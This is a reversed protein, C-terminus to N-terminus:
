LVKLSVETLVGLFGFSGAMLRSVDYGAVNKMVQGGFRLHKAEGTVLRCGLVFDRIGGSWPRRPGAWASAVMGGVTAQGSFVPPECPLYQDYGALLDNMQAVPTGARLTMVLESPQYDVVGKYDRVDLVEGDAQEALHVKTGGGRVLLRRGEAQATAVQEMWQQVCDSQVTMDM